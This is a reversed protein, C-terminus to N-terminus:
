KVTNIIFYKTKHKDHRECSVALLAVKFTRNGYENDENPFANAKTLERGHEGMKCFSQEELTMGGQPAAQTIYLTYAACRSPVLTLNNM